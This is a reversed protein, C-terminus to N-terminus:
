RDAQARCKQFRLLSVSFSPFIISQIPLARLAILGSKERTANVNKLFEMSTGSNLGNNQFYATSWLVDVNASSSTLVDESFPFLIRVDLDINSKALVGYIKSLIPM